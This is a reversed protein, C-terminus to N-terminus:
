ESSMMRIREVNKLIEEKKNPMLRAAAEFEIVAESLLGLEAFASGRRSFYHTKATSGHGDFYATNSYQRWMEQINFSIVAQFIDQLCVQGDIQFCVAVAPSQSFCETVM